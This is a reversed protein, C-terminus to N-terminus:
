KIIHHQHQHQHQRHNNNHQRHTSFSKKMEHMKKERDWWGEPKKKLTM